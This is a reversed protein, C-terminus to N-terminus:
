LKKKRKPDINPIKKVKGPTDYPAKGSELDIIPIKKKRKIDTNQFKEKSELTCFRVDILIMKLEVKM